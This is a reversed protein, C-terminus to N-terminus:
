HRFGRYWRRVTGNHESVVEYEIFEFEKGVEDVNGDDDSVTMEPIADEDDSEAVNVKAKVKLPDPLLSTIDCYTELVPREPERVRSRRQRRARDTANLCSSVSGDPVLVQTGYYRTARKQIDASKQSEVNEALDYTALMDLTNPAPPATNDEEFDFIPHAYEGRNKRSRKERRTPARPNTSSYSTTPPNSLWSM